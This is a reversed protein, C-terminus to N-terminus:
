TQSPRQPPSKPYREWLDNLSGLVLSPTDELRQQHCHGAGLLLCPVGISKAVEFDHLTDGILLIEEAKWPCQQIWQKARHVKGDAYINDTGLLNDFYHQIGFHTTGIELAQQHAASLISHSLGSARSAQFIQHVGDHLRCEELWRSEYAAIFKQSIAEFNAKDTEFGLFQYFHIVPFNFHTRYSDLSIQAMGQEALLTNLVEVCLWSDDLLTGNWDWLIHKYQEIM